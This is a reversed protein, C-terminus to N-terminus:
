MRVTLTEGSFFRNNESTLKKSGAQDTQNKEPFSEAQKESTYPGDHFFKLSKHSAVSPHQPYSFRFGKVLM